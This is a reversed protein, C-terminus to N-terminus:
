TYDYYITKKKKKFSMYLQADYPLPHFFLNYVHIRYKKLQNRELDSM